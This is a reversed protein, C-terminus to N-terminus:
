YRNYNSRNILTTNGRPEKSANLSGGRHVTAGCSRQEGNLKNTEQVGRQRKGMISISMNENRGTNTEGRPAWHHHVPILSGVHERVGPASDVANISQSSDCVGGLSLQGVFLFPQVRHVFSLHLSRFVPCMTFVILSNKLISFIAM